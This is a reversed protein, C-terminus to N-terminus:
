GPRLRPRGPRPRAFSECRPPARSRHAGATTRRRATPHAEVHAGSPGRMVRVPLMATNRRLSRCCRPIGGCPYARFPKSCPTKSRRPHRELLRELLSELTAWPRGGERPPRGPSQCVRVRLGDLPSVPGSESAACHAERVDVRRSPRTSWGSACRAADPHCGRRSPCGREHPYLGRARARPRSPGYGM